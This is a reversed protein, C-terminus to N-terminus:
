GVITATHIPLIIEGQLICTTQSQASSHRKGSSKVGVFTCATGSCSVLSRTRDDGVALAVAKRKGMDMHPIAAWLSQRVHQRDAKLQEKIGRSLPPMPRVLLFTLAAWNPTTSTAQLLPSRHM